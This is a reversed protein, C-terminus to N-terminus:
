RKPLLVVPQGNEAQRILEPDIRVGEELELGQYGKCDCLMHTENGGSSVLSMSETLIQERGTYGDQNLAVLYAEDKVGHPTAPVATAAFRAMAKGPQAEWSVLHLYASRPTFAMGVVAVIPQEPQDLGLPLSNVAPNAANLESVLRSQGDGNAFFQDLAQAYQGNVAAAIKEPVIQSADLAFAADTEAKVEDAEFVRNDMNVKLGKFNVRIRSKLMPVNVLGSGDYGGVGGSATLIQLNFYGLKVVDQPSIALAREERNDVVGYDTSFVSCGQPAPNNVLTIGDEIPEDEYYMFTSIESLGDNQFLRSTPHLSSRARVRWAYVREPLLQPEAQTYLLSPVLTTTQFIRLSREFADNANFYGQPLEVLEFEYEVPIPSNASGIHMPAWSFITNQTEPYPLQENFAPKVIQPPQNLQFNGQICFSNSVPVEREVGYLQACIQTFGEPIILAGTGNNNAGVLNAPDLYENLLSGDIQLMQFQDLTIPTGRFNPDTQYIVSGNQEISLLLRVQISPETPDNLMANFFLDQPRDTRYVALDLSRPPVLSGTLQIPWVQQAIGLNAMGMWLALILATHKLFSM